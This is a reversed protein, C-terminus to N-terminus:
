ARQTQGDRLRQYSQTCEGQALGDQPLRATLQLRCGRAENPRAEEEEVLPAEDRSIGESM